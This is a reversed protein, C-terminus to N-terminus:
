SRARPRALTEKVAEVLNGRSVSFQAPQAERWEVNDEIQKSLAAGLVLDKITVAGKAREDEGEIVAVPAGRRDAYKLQARMGAGGLYVEARLGAARLEAAMRQYDAMRAPDLALVVVPGDFARGAGTEKAFELAALLRSVGISVGVAPVEVGRFRKVLGDYRGGGGISGFRVPRGQEDQTEFALDAEFVPGTYYELGRIISCDIGVVGKCDEPLLRTIAILEDLGAEGSKTGGLTKSIASVTKLGAGIASKLFLAVTDIQADSLGVGKTFDGSEDRRGPGLLLRVGEEGLRDFKDMSRMVNLRREAEDESDLGIKEFLGDVIKRSSIRIRFDKRPIGAAEIVEVFLACMEADAYPAPAGVTDADCQTFQRFRGPGPKENRWVPGVAYRRYPKPLADYNQAVFRALPATLDYRLSMWQEDDDQLSFVGQNPRDVDPLFKGLADTYEFTPTELPEFGWAEYVASIRALMEREAAIEAGRRDRFGRPIRAKPRIEKTKKAM